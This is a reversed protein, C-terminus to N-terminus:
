RAIATYMAFGLMTATMASLVLVIGGIRRTAKLQWWMLLGTFGWFCLVGAMLDVVVAWFWRANTEGPYGHTTHLRLLFRRWGLEGTPKTEALVGSLNGTSGNFTATWTQGNVEIPFVIEPVSTVTIEGTPFGTRELVVPISAKVRDALRDALSLSDLGSVSQGGGGARDRKRPAEAPGIAFPAPQNPEMKPKEITSRVTGSGNKVDILVSVTQGDAKVTAFAFERNYRVEGAGLKYPETPKQQQNLAAIVQNAQEPLSPVSEMPTGALASAGFAVMPQDSFALPHNFLFASVGYLIAWPFLFLGFYLHARRLVMMATKSFPRPDLKRATPEIMADTAQLENQSMNFTEWLKVV